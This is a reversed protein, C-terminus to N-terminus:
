PRGLLLREVDRWFKDFSPRDFLVSFAAPDRRARAIVEADDPETQAIM